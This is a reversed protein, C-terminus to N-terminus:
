AGRGQALLELFPLDLGIGGGGHLYLMPAGQGREFMELEIGAISIM